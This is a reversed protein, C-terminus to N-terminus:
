AFEVPRRGPPLEAVDGDTVVLHRAELRQVMRRDHTVVIVTGATAAIADQVEEILDVSLHNTPEDLILVEPPDAVVLALAVRRQQGVSLDGVPREADSPSLLGLDDLSVKTVSLADYLENATKTADPWRQEQRLMAVRAEQGIRAEGAAPPLEGALVDLLTSKGAGNPGTIVVTDGPRITLSGVRLREPVVVGRLKLHFDDDSGAPARKTSPAKTLPADFGLLAPPKPVGNEDLVELRGRAARIRRAATRDARSGAHNFSIKDNDTRVVEEETAQQTKEITRQLDSRERQETRWQHEWLQREHRRHKDYESWNGRFLGIGPRGPILDGIHTCTADLFDRDHTALVVIGPHNTITDIVLQRGREDLHNTPEDLLLIEPKRILTLALGLRARQGGSLSVTVQDLTASEPGETNLGLHDLIVEANHEANWDDHAMVDSLQASYAAEARAATQPDDSAMDAAFDELAQLRRRAPGLAEEVLMRGTSNFPAELEQSGLARVGIHHVSGSTPKRRGSLIWLLTSKGAGNDGVLGLVSGAGLMLNVQQLVPTGVYDFCIDNATLQTAAGTASSTTPDAM